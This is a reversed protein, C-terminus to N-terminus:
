HSAWDSMPFTDEDTISQPGDLTTRLREGQARTVIEYYRKMCRQAEDFRGRKEHGISTAYLVLAEHYGEVILPSDTDSSMDAPSYACYVQLKGEYISADDAHTAATTGGDARVCQTFTTATKNFYLIQENDILIRGMSPFNTTDDVTISTASSTIGAGDNIATSAGASTPRPYLRIKRDWPFQTYIRPRDAESSFATGVLEAFVHQPKPWVRYQDAWRIHEIKIIDSPLTYEAQDAIIRVGHIKQAWETKSLFDKYGFNIWRKIEADTFYAATPEVLRSRVDSQLTSFQM